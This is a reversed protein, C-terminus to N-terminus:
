GSIKEKRSVRAASAARRNNEAITVTELHAPNVCSTVRCLHDIHMGDPIPGSTNVYAWRHAGVFKSRGTSAVYTVEAFTGYGAPMRAGTWIWCPGLEPRYEPLPGDKDVKSWFREATTPRALEVSGLRRFRNYHKCCYGRSYHRGECGDVTCSRSM